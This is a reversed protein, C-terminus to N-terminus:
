ILDGQITEYTILVADQKNHAKIEQAISRLTYLGGGDEIIEYVLSKEEKGRWSGVTKYLTFGDFCTNLLMEIFGKDKDETYLRYRRM